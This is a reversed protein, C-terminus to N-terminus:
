KKDKDLLYNKYCQQIYEGLEIDNLMLINEYVPRYMDMFYNLEEGDLKTLQRVFYKNFRHDIYKDHEQQVLREQLSLIQKNRRFRFMNIIEDLDLGVTVSGPVYSSPSASVVRLGPKKFDFYKAYGLRNQISDFKYDRTQVKVEPLWAADVYLAIEFNSPDAITDVPYKITQKGLYSFWVSDKERVAIHYKGLTDSLAINGNSAFVTVLQVPQKNFHDYVAGHLTFSQAHV